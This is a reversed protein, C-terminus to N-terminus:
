SQSTVDTLEVAVCSESEVDDKVIILSKHFKFFRDGSTDCRRFIQKFFTKFVYAVHKMTKLVYTNARTEEAPVYGCAPLQPCHGSGSSPGGTGGPRPPGPFFPAGWIESLAKTVAYLSV